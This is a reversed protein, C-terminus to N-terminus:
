CSNITTIADEHNIPHFRPSVVSQQINTLFSFSLSTYWIKSYVPRRFRLFTMFFKRSMMLLGFVAFTIPLINNAVRKKKRENIHYNTELWKKRLKPKYNTRAPSKSGSEGHDRKNGNSCTDGNVSSGKDLASLDSRNCVSFLMDWRGALCRFNEESERCAGKGASTYDTPHINASITIWSGRNSSADSDRSLILRKLELLHKVWVNYEEKEVRKCKGNGM